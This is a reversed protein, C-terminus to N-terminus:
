SLAKGKIIAFQEACVVRSGVYCIQHYSNSAAETKTPQTYGLGWSHIKGAFEPSKQYVYQLQPRAVNLKADQVMGQPVGLGFDGRYNGVTPTYGFIAEPSYGKYRHLHFSFTDTSISRFGMGISAEQGFGVSGYAIAGNPFLNFLTANIDQRQYTDQLLHYEAAGGNWELVKALNHFDDKAFSRKIYNTEIGRSEVEPMVGITGTSGSINDDPVGEMVADEISYLFQQNMTTVALKDIYNSGGMDVQTKNMAVLDTTKVGTRLVTATNDYRYIKPKTTGQATSAEGALQTGGFTEIGEGAKIHTTSTSSNLAYAGLPVLSATFAGASTRNISTIKAKKGTSRIKVTQGDVFPSQTGTAGDTYSEPQKFTITITSSSGAAVDANVLGVGFIRGKEFHSFTNTTTSTEEITSRGLVEAVLAYSDNGYKSFLKDKYEPIVFNLENFVGTTLGDTYGAVGPAGGVGRVIQALAM